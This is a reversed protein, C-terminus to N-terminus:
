LLILSKGDKSIRWKRPLYSKRHWEELAKLKKMPVGSIQVGSKGKSVLKLVVPSHEDKEAM